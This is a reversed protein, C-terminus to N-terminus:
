VTNEERRDINLYKPLNKLNPTCKPKLKFNQLDNIKPKQKLEKSVKCSRLQCGLNKKLRIQGKLLIKSANPSM